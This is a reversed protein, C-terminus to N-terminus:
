RAKMRRRFIQFALPLGLAMVVPDHRLIRATSRWDIAMGRRARHLVEEIFRTRLNGLREQLTQRQLGTIAYQSRVRRLFRLQDLIQRFALEGGLTSSRWISVGRGYTCEVDTSFAIGRSVSVADLWFLHDEFAYRCGPSFRVGRLASWRFVVTSTEIVNARIIQDRMDGVFQFCSSGRNLPTHQAPVMAKRRAFEDVQRDPELHNAFYFDLDNGLAAAANRLHNPEWADDSDLFAVYTTEPSIQDLGRNRAAGPGANRQALLRVQINAPLSEPIEADPDAPSEDNVVLVEISSDITQGCVSRIANSLLGPRRQFFPVIVSVSAMATRAPSTV